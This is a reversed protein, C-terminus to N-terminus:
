LYQSPRVLLPLPLGGMARRKSIIESGDATRPAIIDIVVRKLM